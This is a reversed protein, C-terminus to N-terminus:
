KYEMEEILGNQIMEDYMKRYDPDDTYKRTSLGDAKQWIDRAIGELKFSVDSDKPLVYISSEMNEGKELSLCRQNRLPFIGGESALSRIEREENYILFTNKSKYHIATKKLPPLELVDMETTLEKNRYICQVIKVPIKEPSENFVTATYQGECKEIGEISLQEVFFYDEEATKSYRVEGNSHVESILTYKGLPAEPPVPYQFYYHRGAQIASLIDVLVEKKSAGSLYEALVLLPTNKNLYKYPSKEINNNSEGTADPLALINGEHLMEIKGDPLKVGIRVFPFIHTGKLHATNFNWHITIGKGRVTRKPFISM